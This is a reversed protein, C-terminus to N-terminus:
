QGAARTRLISDPKVAVFYYFNERLLVLAEATTKSRLVIKKLKKSSIDISQTGFIYEDTRQMTEEPTVYRKSGTCQNYNESKVTASQLMCRDNEPFVVLLAELRTGFCDPAGCDLVHIDANLKLQILNAAPRSVSGAKSYRALFASSSCADIVANKAIVNKEPGHAPMSSTSAPAPAQGGTVDWFFM